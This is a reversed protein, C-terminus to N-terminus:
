GNDADSTQEDNDTEDRSDNGNNDRDPEGKPLWRKMMTALLVPLAISVGLALPLWGHEQAVEGFASYVLSLVLNTALVPVLFRRWSLKHIGMLLVSAEALVPVGRTLILAAPGYRDSVSQMQELSRDKSFWRAFPRGFRRALAFGLIAGLSMGVWSTLTGWATGLKMGGITSVMSSPVPLFIDTSLLGVEVAAVFGADSDQQLTQQVWQDLEDGFAVFPLIPILMVLCILM